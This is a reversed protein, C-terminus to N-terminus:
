YENWGLRGGSTLNTDINETLERNKLTELRSRIAGFQVM